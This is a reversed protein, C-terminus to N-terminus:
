YGRRAFSRLQELTGNFLNLDVDGAIGSVVGEDSHQWFTWTSWPPPINPCSVEYNAIFLSHRIFHEPNGLANWFAPGTYIVPIKGTAREVRELWVKARQIQTAVSVGDTVEWDFLPPLDFEELSGITKLFLDAQAVPDASPRFFHYAGRLIKEDGAKKWDSAYVPSVYGDGETAKIYVFNKGAIKVKPWQINVQWPSVDIGNVTQPGKCVKLYGSNNPRPIPPEYKEIPQEISASSNLSLGESGGIPACAVISSAFGLVLAARLLTMDSNDAYKEIRNLSTLLAFTKIM